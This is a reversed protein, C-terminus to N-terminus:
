VFLVLCLALTTKVPEMLIVNLNGRNPANWTVIKTVLISKYEELYQVISPWCKPVNILWPYKTISFFYINKNIEALLGHVSMRKGHHIVNRRKWIHWIVMAPIINFIIMLKPACDAQWWKLINSRLQIFPGQVCFATAFYNWVMKSDPCDYFLHQFNEVADTSCCCCTVGEVVRMQMLVEGITIRRKCVRWMLFVIKFPLGKLWIKSFFKHREKEDRVLEWTSSVTFKGNGTLKWWPKDWDDEVQVVSIKDIIHTVIESPLLENLMPVNWSDDLMLSKVDELGEQMVHNIPLVYCLAGLQTWNDYWTNASGSRPEWWIEQDFITEQKFCTNGHRLAM